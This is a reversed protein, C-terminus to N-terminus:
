GGSIAFGIPKDLEYVKYEGWEGPRFGYAKIIQKEAEKHNKAIAVALGNYYDPAFEDWVYIKM